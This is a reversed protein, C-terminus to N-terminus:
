KIVSIVYAYDASHNNTINQIIFKDNYIDFSIYWTTNRNAKYSSFYAGLKNNYTKKYPSNPIKFIFNYISDTYDFASDIFGFYEKEYLTKILNNLQLIVEPLLIIKEV